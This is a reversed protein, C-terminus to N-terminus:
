GAEVSYTCIYLHTFHQQLLSSYKDVKVLLLTLNYCIYWTNKTMNLVRENM